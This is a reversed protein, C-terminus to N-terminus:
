NFNAQTICIDSNYLFIILSAMISLMGIYLSHLFFTTLLKKLLIGFGIKIYHVLHLGNLILGFRNESKMHVRDVGMVLNKLRKGLGNTRFVIGKDLMVLGRGSQFYQALLIFLKLFLRLAKMSPTLLALSKDPKLCGTSISSKVARCVHHFEGSELPVLLTTLLISFVISIGSTWLCAIRAALDQPM